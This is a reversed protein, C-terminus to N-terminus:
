PLLAEDREPASRAIQVLLLASLLASIASVSWALARSVFQDTESWVLSLTTANFAAHLLYGPLISASARRLLALALGVLLLSPWIRPEAHSLSFCVATTAAVSWFGRGPSLRSVLAGRFFMEEALPALAVAFLAISVREGTGGGQLREARERLVPEPTPLLAEVALQLVDAVGHLSVGLACAAVFLWAPAPTFGLGLWPSRRAAGFVWPPSAGTVRVLWFSVGAYLVVEVAGGIALKDALPSLEHILMLSGILACTAVATWAVADLPSFSSKM